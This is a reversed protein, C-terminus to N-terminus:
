WRVLCSDSFIPLDLLAGSESKTVKGPRPDFDALVEPEGVVSDPFVLRGGRHMGDGTHILVVLWKDDKQFISMEITPDAKELRISPLVGAEAAFDRAMQLLPLGERRPWTWDGDPLYLPPTNGAVRTRRVRGLYVRGDKQGTWVVSGQACQERVPASATEQPTLARKLERGTEDMYPSRGALVLYGGGEAYARLRDVVDVPLSPCDPVVLMPYRKPSIAKGNILEYPTFVDFSGLGAQSLIKYWGMVDLMDSKQGGPDAESYPQLPLLFAFKTELEAGELFEIANSANTIMRATDEPSWAEHWDYDPTGRWCYYYSGKLGHAIAALTTRNLSNFGVYVGHTFDQLDTAVMPKGYKRALDLVVTTYHFDGKGACLQLGNIDVSPANTLFIDPRQTLSLDDWQSLTGLLYGTYHMIRRSPDSARIALTWREMNRAFMEMSFTNFDYWAAAPYRCPYETPLSYSSLMLSEADDADVVEFRVDGHWLPTSWDTPNGDDTESREFEPNSILNSGDTTNMLIPNRWSVRGPGKQVFLLTGQTAGEPVIVSESLSRWKGNTDDSALIARTSSKEDSVNWQVIVSVMNVLTEETKLDVSLLYEKGAVVADIRTAWAGDDWSEYMFSNPGFDSHGFRWFKLPTVDEISGYAAGWRENVGELSGYKELLWERFAVCALPGFDLLGPWFVEAGNVYINVRKEPDNRSIWGTLDEIYQQVMEAYRPSLPSSFVSQAGDASRVNEGLAKTQESRWGESTHHISTDIIVASTLGTEYLYRLWQEASKFDVLLKERDTMRWCFLNVLMSHAKSAPYADRGPQSWHVVFGLPLDGIVPVAAPLPESLAPSRLKQVDIMNQVEAGAATVVAVCGLAYVIRSLRFRRTFAAIRMMM